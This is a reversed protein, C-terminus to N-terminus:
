TRPIQVHRKRIRLLFRSSKRFGDFPESKARMEWCGFAAHDMLLDGCTKWMELDYPVCVLDSVEPFIGKRSGDDWKETRGKCESILQSYTYM